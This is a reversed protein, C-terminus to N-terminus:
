DGGDWEDSTSDVAVVDVVGGHLDKDLTKVFVRGYRVKDM